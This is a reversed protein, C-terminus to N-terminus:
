AILYYAIFLIDVVVSVAGATLIYKMPAVALLLSITAMTPIVIMSLAAVSEVAGLGVAMGGLCGVILLVACILGFRHFEINTGLIGDTANGSTIEKSM